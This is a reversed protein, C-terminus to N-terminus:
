NLRKELRLLVNSMPLVLMGAVINSVGHILDFPLGAAIWALTQEFNLGFLLAQGPAYLVGYLFGHLGCVVPYIVMAQRRSLNRPLLM